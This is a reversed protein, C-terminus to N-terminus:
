FAFFVCWDVDHSTKVRKKGDKHKSMFGYEKFNWMKIIINRKTHAHTRSTLAFSDLSQLSTCVFYAFLTNNLGTFICNENKEELFFGSACLWLCVRFFIEINLLNKRPAKSMIKYRKINM